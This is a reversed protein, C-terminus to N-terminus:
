QKPGRGSSASAWPEMTTARSPQRPPLLVRGGKSTADIAPTSGSSAGSLSITEGGTPRGSSGLAGKAGGGGGFGSSGSRTVSVSRPGTEMSAWDAAPILTATVSCLAPLRATTTRNRGSVSRKSTVPGPPASLQRQGSFGTAAIRSRKVVTGGPPLM